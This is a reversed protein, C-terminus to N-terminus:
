WKVAAGVRGVVVNTAKFDALINSSFYGGFDDTKEGDFRAWLVEARISYHENINHEVGAGVVPGLKTENKIFRINKEQVTYSSEVKGFALGATLYLMTDEINVGARGRITALYDVSNNLIGDYYSDVHNFINTSKAGLWTVDGEVGLVLNQMGMNQWNHGFYIGAAMGTSSLQDDFPRSYGEDSFPASLNAASQINSAGVAVGTYSQAHAAGSAAAAFLLSTSLVLASKYSIKM